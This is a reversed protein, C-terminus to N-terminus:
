LEMLFLLKRNDTPLLLMHHRLHVRTTVTPLIRRVSAILVDRIHLLLIQCPALRLIQVSHVVAMIRALRHSRLHPNLVHMAAISIREHRAASWVVLTSHVTSCLAETISIPKM